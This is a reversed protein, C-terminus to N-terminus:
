YDLGFYDMVAYYDNIDIGETKLKSLVGMIATKGATNSSSKIIVIKLSSLTGKPLIRNNTTESDHFEIGYFNPIVEVNVDVEQGVLLITTTPIPYYVRSSKLYGLIVDNDLVEQTLEPIRQDHSDGSFNTLDYSFTRVNANGDQGDTGNIGDQGAPGMPGIEGDKSCSTFTLAILVIVLGLYKMTTKM